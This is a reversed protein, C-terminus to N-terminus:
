EHSDVAHMKAADLVDMASGMQAAHVHTYIGLSTRESAHGLLKAMVKPHVNAEALDTAFTHRFQHLHWGDMGYDSAHRRWWHRLGNSKLGEGHQDALLPWSSVDGTNAAQKLWAERADLASRLTSSIPVDRIGASDVDGKKKKTRTVHMYTRTDAWTMADGCFECQRLGSECMIIIALQHVEEPDLSVILQVEDGIGLAPMEPTDQQPRMADIFPNSIVLGAKRAHEFMGWAVTAYCRVTTGSLKRGSPSDGSMLATFCNEVDTVTVAQLNLAGLHRSISKLFAANKAHTSADIVGMALKSDNWHAAYQSFTWQTRAVTEGADMSEAIGRAKDIAATYTGDFVETSWSIGGAKTKGNEVRIQWHRCKGKPTGKAARPIAGYRTGSSTKM